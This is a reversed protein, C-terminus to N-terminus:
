HDIGYMLIYLYVAGMIHLQCDKFEKATVHLFDVALHLVTTSHQTPCNHLTYHCLPQTYEQLQRENSWLCCILFLNSTLVNCGHINTTSKTHFNM